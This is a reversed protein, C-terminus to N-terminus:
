SSFVLPWLATKGPPKCFPLKPVASAHLPTLRLHDRIFQVLLTRPEVEASVAKGNVTMSVHIM